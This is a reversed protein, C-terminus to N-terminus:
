DARTPWWGRAQFIACLLCATFVGLCAGGLVDTPWHVGRYVRSVGIWFALFLAGWGYKVNPTKWTLLILMTAVAFSTTTHGSPFSSLHFNEQPVAIKLFSPRERFIESKLIQAFILGSCVVTALLPIVMPKMREWRLLLLALLFQVQGLGLYSLVFFVPDLIPSHWGIHITRFVVMDLEFLGQM